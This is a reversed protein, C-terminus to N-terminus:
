TKLKMMTEAKVRAKDAMQAGMELPFMTIGETSKKIERMMKAVIFDQKPKLDVKVEEEDEDEDEDEEAIEDEAKLKALNPTHGDKEILKAKLVAGMAMAADRDVADLDIEIEEFKEKIWNTILPM